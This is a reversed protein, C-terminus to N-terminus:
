EELDMKAGCKPCYHLHAMCYRNNDTDPIMVDCVSCAMFGKISFGGQDCKNWRGHVVPAAEIAVGAAILYDALEENDHWEMQVPFDDLLAILKGRADM